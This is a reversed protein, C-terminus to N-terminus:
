ICERQSPRLFLKHGNFVLIRAIANEFLVGKFLPLAGKRLSDLLVREDDHCEICRIFYHPNGRIGM